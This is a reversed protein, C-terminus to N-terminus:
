LGGSEAGGRSGAVAQDARRRDFQSPPEIKWRMGVQTGGRERQRITCMDSSAAIVGFGVGLGAHSSASHLGCGNDSIFVTLRPGIAAASLYFVGQSDPYAHVVANTAAESVALRIADLREGTIGVTEALDAVAHRALRVSDPEAPYAHERRRNILDNFALALDASEDCLAAAGHRARVARDRLASVRGAAWDLNELAM